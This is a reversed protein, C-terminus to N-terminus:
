QLGEAVHLVRDAAAPLVCRMDSGGEAPDFIVLDKGAHGRQYATALRGLNRAPVSFGTDRM